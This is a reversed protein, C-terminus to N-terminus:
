KKLNRLLNKKKKCLLGHTWGGFRLVLDRYNHVNCTNICMLHLCLVVNEPVRYSLAITFCKTPSYGVVCM